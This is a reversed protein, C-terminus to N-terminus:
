LWCQDSAWPGLRGGVSPHPHPVEWGPRGPRLSSGPGMRLSPRLLCTASSASFGVYCKNTKRRPHPPLFFLSPFLGATSYVSCELSPKPAGPMGRGPWGPAAPGSTWGVTGVQSRQLGWGKVRPSEAWAPGAGLDLGGGVFLEVLKGTRGAQRPCGPPEWGWEGQTSPGCWCWGRIHPGARTQGARPGRLTVQKMGLTGAVAM